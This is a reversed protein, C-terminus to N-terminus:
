VCSFFDYLCNSHNDRCMNYIAKFITKEIIIKEVVYYIIASIPLAIPPNM